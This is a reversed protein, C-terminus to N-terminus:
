RPQTLDMATSGPLWHNTVPDASLVMLTLKPWILRQKPIPIFFSLCLLGHSQILKIYQYLNLTLLQTLSCGNVFIIRDLIRSVRMLMMIDGDALQFQSIKSVQRCKPCM